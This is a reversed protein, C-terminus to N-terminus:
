LAIKFILRYRPLSLTEMRSRSHGVLSFMVSSSAHLWSVCQHGHEGAVSSLVPCYVVCLSIALTGALGASPRWCTLLAVSSCGAKSLQGGGSIGLCRLSCM